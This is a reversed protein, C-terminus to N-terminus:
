LLAIKQVLTQKDKLLTDMTKRVLVVRDMGAAAKVADIINKVSKCFFVDDIKEQQHLAVFSQFRQMFREQDGVLSYFILLQAILDPNEPALMWLQEYLSAAHVWKQEKQYLFAAQTHKECAGKEDNLFFLIDGELQLAYAKDQFSHALLRYVSLAKERERRTILDALKFWAVSANKSGTRLEM